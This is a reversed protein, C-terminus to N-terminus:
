NGPGSTVTVPTVPTVPAPFTVNSPLTDTAPVPTPVSATVPASVTAATANIPIASAQPLASNAASIQEPLAVSTLASVQSQLKSLNGNTNKVITDTKKQTQTVAYGIVGLSPLLGVLTILVNLFSSPDHGTVILVVVLGAVAVFSAAITIIIALSYNAQKTATTNSM